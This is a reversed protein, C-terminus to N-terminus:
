NENLKYEVKELREVGDKTVYVEFRDDYERILRDQMNSYYVKVKEGVRIPKVYQVKEEINQVKPEEVEEKPVINEEKQIKDETKDETKEESTEETKEPKKLGNKIKKIPNVVIHKLTILLACLVCVGMGIAYLICELLMDGKGFLLPNFDTTIYLVVGAFAYLIPLYLGTIKLVKFIFIVIVKLVTFIAKTITGLVHGFGKKKEESKEPM